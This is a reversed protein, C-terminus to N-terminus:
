ILSKEQDFHFTFPPLDTPDEFHACVSRWLDRMASRAMERDDAYFVANGLVRHNDDQIAKLSILARAKGAM